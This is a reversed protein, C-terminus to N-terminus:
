QSRRAALSSCAGGAPPSMSMRRGRRACSRLFWACIMCCLTRREFRRRGWLIMPGQHRGFHNCAVCPALDAERGVQQEFVLQDASREYVVRQRLNLKVRVLWTPPGTRAFTSLQVAPGQRGGSERRRATLLSPLSAAQDIPRRAVSAAACLRGVRPEVVARRLRRLRRDCGRARPRELRFLSRTPVSTWTKPCHCLVLAPFCRCQM